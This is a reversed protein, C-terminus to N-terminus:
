NMNQRARAIAARERVTLGGYIGHELENKIGYEACAAVIPCGACMDRAIKVDWVNAYHEPFFLDPYNTCPVIEKAEDQAAWVRMLDKNVSLDLM